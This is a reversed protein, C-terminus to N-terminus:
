LQGDPLATQIKVFEDFLRSLRKREEIDLTEEPPEPAILAVAQHPRGWARDFLERIAAIEGKRAREALAEAIPGADRMAVEAIVRRAEEASKAAFGM